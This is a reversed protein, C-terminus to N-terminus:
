LMTGRLVISAVIFYIVVGSVDVLTAVLPASASAPDLKLRKLLFPLMSGAITGLLVVGILSFGVTLGILWFYPGFSQIGSIHWLTVRTFGLVALMLGLAFGSIVERKAVRLWDSPTLEGLSLSRIILTTAQSGSNGGSSIILPLFLSLVIAKSLEDEFFSMATATLMEGMLLVALWVGRKQILSFVSTQIYSTEIADMGGLKQLDENQEEVLVDLVDDVTVIGVLQKKANSVPIALLDYRSLLRAVEEQDTEVCATKPETLMIDRILCSPENALLERLSVVGLLVGTAADTVYTYYITEKQNAVKRISDIAEAVTIHERISVFETTMIGGASEPHYHLLTSLNQAVEKSLRPRLVEAFESTLGRFLYVREDPSMAEVLSKALELDLLGLVVGRNSFSHEDFVAVALSLPMAQILKAADEPTLSALSEALDPPKIEHLAQEIELEDSQLVRLLQESLLTIDPTPTMHAEM